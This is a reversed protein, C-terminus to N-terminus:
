SPVANAADPYRSQVYHPNLEFLGPMLEQARLERALDLISHTQPPFERRM